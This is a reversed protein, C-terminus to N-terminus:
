VQPSVKRYLVGSLVLRVKDFAQRAVGGVKEYAFEVDDEPVHPHILKRCQKLEDLTWMAMFLNTPGVQKDFDHLRDPDPSITVVTVGWFSQYPAEKGKPDCLFWANEDKLYSITVGRPGWMQVGDEDSFRYWNDKSQLIVTKNQLRLQYLLYLAFISKGTGPTGSVVVSPRGHLVVDFIIDELEVYCQRVFLKSGRSVDGLFFVDKPLRLVNDM